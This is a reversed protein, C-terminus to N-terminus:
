EKKLFLILGLHGGHDTYRFGGTRFGHRQALFFLKNLPYGNMQMKPEGGRIRRSLQSLPNRIRRMLSRRLPTAGLTREHKTHAFTVHLAACGGKELREFLAAVVDLGRQPDIHQLVIYSYIFTFTESDDLDDLRRLLRVNRCNFRACNRAAEERMADSIDIGVSRESHQACPILLRGVGCGFDLTRSLSVEGLQQRCDAILSGVEERGTRFFLDLGEATMQERRFRADTLVGFYPDRRGLVQWDEDTSMWIAQLVEM